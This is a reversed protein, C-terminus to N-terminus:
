NTQEGFALQEISAQQMNLVNTSLYKNNGRGSEIYAHMYACVGSWDVQKTVRSKWEGLQYVSVIEQARAVCEFRMCQVWDNATVSGRQMLMNYGRAKPQLAHPPSRLMSLHERRLASVAAGKTKSREITNYQSRAAAAGSRM